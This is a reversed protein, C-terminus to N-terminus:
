LIEDSRYEFTRGSAVCACINLEIVKRWLSIRDICDFAKKYDVFAVYLRKSRRVYYNCIFDLTLMHDITSYGERFGVQEEFLTKNTDLFQRENIIFTFFKGLCSLLIIGRYSDVENIDGKNKYLPKIVGISWDEPIYSKYLILNFLKTYLQIMANNSHKIFENIIIDQGCAKGNKLKKINKCVEDVTFPVNLSSDNMNSHENVNFHEAPANVNMNIKLNVLFIMVVLIVIATKQGLNDQVM